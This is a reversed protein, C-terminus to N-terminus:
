ELILSDYSPFKVTKDYNENDGMNFLSLWQHIAM